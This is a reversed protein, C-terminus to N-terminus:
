FLRFGWIFFYLFMSKILNIIQFFSKHSGRNWTHIIEAKPLHATTGLLSLKRVLDADELHLFFSKTFGGVEKFMLPKVLLFSGSLFEAKFTESLYKKDKNKHFFDYKSLMKFKKLYPLFGILLSFFTPNKKASFQIDGKANKIIPNACIIEDQTIFFEIIKILEQYKFYTDPNSIIFIDNKNFEYNSFNKNNARGFGINRSDHFYNVEYDLFKFDSPIFRDKSTSNDHISLFIKKNKDLLYYKNLYQISNLLPYIDELSQNFLVLSFVIKKM